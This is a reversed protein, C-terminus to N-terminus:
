EFPPVDGSGDQWKNGSWVNGVNYYFIAVPGYGACTSHFKKGFLNDIFRINTGGSGGAYVCYAGSTNFLNNMVLVNDITPENYLSLASSCIPPQGPLRSCQVNNHIVQANNGHGQGAGIGAGHAEDTYNFDHTYSDRIIANNGIHIGSGTHHINCRTCTFNHGAVATLFANPNGEDEIEVDTLTLGRFDYANSWHTSITGHIQSRTITVNAGYITLAQPFYCKDFSVNSDWIYGNDTECESLTVGTHRWGTCNEDPFAPYPPCIEEFPPDPEEPPPDDGGGGNGPDTIGGPPPNNNGNGGNNGGPAPQGGGALAAPLAGFVVVGNVIKADGTLTAAEMEFVPKSDANVIGIALFAIFIALLVGCVAAFLKHHNWFHRITTLQCAHRLTEKWQLLLGPAIEKPLIVNKVFRHYRWLLFGLSLILGVLAGAVVWLWVAKSSARPTLVIKGDIVTTGPESFDAAASEAVLCNDGGDVPVCERNAAFLGKDIQVGTQNGAIIVTHEGAALDLILPQNVDDIGVWAFENPTANRGVLMPCEDDVKLFIPNGSTPTSQRLWIRYDGNQPLTVKVSAQSQTPFPLCEANAPAVYGVLLSSVGLLLAAFFLATRKALTAVRLNGWVEGTQTNM